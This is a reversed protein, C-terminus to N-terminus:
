QQMIINLLCIIDLINMVGDENCDDCILNIPINWGLIYDAVLLIDLIDLNADNNVDGILGCGPLFNDEVINASGFLIGDNTNVSMDNTNLLDFNWYGILHNENGQLPTNMFALIETSTRNVNWIRIEDIKGFFYKDLQSNQGVKGIFIPSENFNLNDFNARTDVEEGNLYLTINYEYIIGAVHYWQGSYIMPPTQIIPGGGSSYCVFYRLAFPESGGYLEFSYFVNELSTDIGKYVLGEHQNNTGDITTNEKKFWFEITQSVDNFVSDHPIEMCDNSGDLNIVYNQANVINIIFSYIIFSILFNWHKM